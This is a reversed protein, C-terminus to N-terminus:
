GKRARMVRLAEKLARVEAHVYARQVAPSKHATVLRALEGSIGASTLRTTMSHRLSHFSRLNVVRPGRKKPCPDIGAARMWVLFAESVRGSRNDGGKISKFGGLRRLRLAIWTPIPLVVTRGKRKTKEPLLTLLWGFEPDQALQAPTVDLLDQLRHGTHWGLGLLATWDHAKNKRMVRLMAACQAHSITEKAVSDNDMRKVLVTPNNSRHGLDVARGFVMSAFNLHGNATTVSFKAKMDKYYSAMDETTWADVGETIRAGAWKKLTEWQGRYRRATSEAITQEGEDLFATAVAELSPATEIIQLGALRLIENVMEQAKERSLTGAKAEGSSRELMAAIGGATAKDTVGTSKQRWIWAGASADWARFAAVWVESGKRQFVTAM